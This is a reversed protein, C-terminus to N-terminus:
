WLKNRTDSLVAKHPASGHRRQATQGAGVRLQQRGPGQPVRWYRFFVHCSDSIWPFDTCIRNQVFFYLKSSQFIERFIKLDRLLDHFGLFSSIVFRILCITFFVVFPFVISLPCRVRFPPSPFLCRERCQKTCLFEPQWRRMGDFGQFEQGFKLMKRRAKPRKSDVSTM